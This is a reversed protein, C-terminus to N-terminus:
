FDDHWMDMGGGCVDGCAEACNMDERELDGEMECSQRCEWCAQGDHDYHEEKPKKVKYKGLVVQDLLLLAALHLILKM